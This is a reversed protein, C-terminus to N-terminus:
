NEKKNDVSWNTRDVAMVCQNEFFELKLKMELYKSFWHLTLYKRLLSCSLCVSGEWTATVTM